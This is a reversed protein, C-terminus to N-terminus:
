LKQPGDKLLHLEIEQGNSKKYKEKLYESIPKMEKETGRYKVANKHVIINIMGYRGTNTFQM